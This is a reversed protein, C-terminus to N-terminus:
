SIRILYFKSVKKLIKQLTYQKNKIKTLELAINNIVICQMCLRKILFCKVAALSCMWGGNRQLNILIKPEDVFGHEPIADRRDRGVREENFNRRSEDVVLERRKPRFYAM